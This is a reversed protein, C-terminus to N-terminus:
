EYKANESITKAYKVMLLFFRKSPAYKVKMTNRMIKYTINNKYIKGPAALGDNDVNM